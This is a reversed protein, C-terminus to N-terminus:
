SESVDQGENRASMTANVKNLDHNTHNSQADRLAQVLVQQAVEHAGRYIVM